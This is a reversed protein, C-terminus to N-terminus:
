IQTPIETGGRLFSPHFPFGTFNLSLVRQQLGRLFALCDGSNFRSPTQNLRTLLGAAIGYHETSEPFFALFLFYKFLGGKHSSNHNGAESKKDFTRNSFLIIRLLKLIRLVSNSINDPQSPAWVSVM